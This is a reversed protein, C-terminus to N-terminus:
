KERRKYRIKKFEMGPAEKPRPQFGNKMYFDAKGKACFVQIDRINHELCRKVLCILIKTGIGRRKYLPHVIMDLILAHVVGDCIIRGFGVLQDNEYASIVHWSKKIALFLEDVDLKYKKNWDTTLFLEFFKNKDPLKTDLYINM